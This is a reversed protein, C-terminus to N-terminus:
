YSVDITEAKEDLRGWRYARCFMGMSENLKRQEDGGLDLLPDIEKAITSWIDFEEPKDFDTKLKKIFFTASFELELNRVTAEACERHKVKAIKVIEM